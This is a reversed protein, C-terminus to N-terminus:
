STTKSLGSSNNIHRYDRKFSERDLVNYKKKPANALAESTLDVITVLEKINFTNDKLWVRVKTSMEAKLEFAHNSIFKDLKKQLVEGEEQLEKIQKESAEIQEILSNKEKVYEFFLTIFEVINKYLRKIM